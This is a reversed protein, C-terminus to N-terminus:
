KITVENKAVIRHVFNDELVVKRIVQDRSVVIDLKFNGTAVVYGAIIGNTLSDLDRVRYLQVFSSDSESGLARNLLLPM